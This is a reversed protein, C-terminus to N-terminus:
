MDPKYGGGIVDMMQEDAEGEAEEDDEDESDEEDAELSNRRCFTYLAQRLCGNNRRAREVDARLESLQVASPRCHPFSFAGRQAVLRVFCADEQDAMSGPPASLDYHSTDDLRLHLLPSSDKLSALMSPWLPLRTISLSVLKPLVATLESLSLPVPHYQLERYTASVKGEWRLSLQTVCPLRQLTHVLCATQYPQLLGHTMNISISASAAWQTCRPLLVTNWCGLLWQCYPENYEEGNQPDDYQKYVPDNFVYHRCPEPLHHALRDFVAPTLKPYVRVEEDELPHEYLGHYEHQNPIVGVSEMGRSRDCVVERVEKLRPTVEREYVEAGVLRRMVEQQRAGFGNVMVALTDDDHSLCTWRHLPVLPECMTSHIHQQKWWPGDRMVLSHVRRSCRAFRVFSTDQGSFRLSSAVLSLIDANGLVIVALPPPLVATLQHLRDYAADTVSSAASHSSSSAAATETGLPSQQVRTRKAANLKTTPSDLRKM